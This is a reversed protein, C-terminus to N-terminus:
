EEVLSAVLDRGTVLRALNEILAYAAETADAYRLVPSLPQRVQPADPLYFLEFDSAMIARTQGGKVCFAIPHQDFSEVAEVILGPLWEFESRVYARAADGRARRARDIAWTKGDRDRGETAQCVARWMWAGEGGPSAMFVEEAHETWKFAGDARRNDEHLLLEVMRDLGKDTIAANIATALLSADVAGPAPFKTGLFAPARNAKFNASMPDEGVGNINAMVTAILDLNDWRLNHSRLYVDIMTDMVRNNVVAMLWKRARAIRKREKREEESLQDGPILGTRAAQDGIQTAAVLLVELDEESKALMLAMAELVNAAVDDTVDGLFRAAWRRKSSAIRTITPLLHAVVMWARELRDPDPQVPSAVIKDFQDKRAARARAVAMRKASKDARAVGLAEHRAVEMDYGLGGKPAMNLAPHQDASKLLGATAMSALNHGAFPNDEPKPPTSKAREHATLAAALRTVAEQTMTETM